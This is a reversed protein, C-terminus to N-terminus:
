FFSLFVVGLANFLFNSVKPLYVSSKKNVLVVKSGMQVEQRRPSEAAKSKDGGQVQRRRPSTAAKSKGGGQVKRRRPSEAAKSELVRYFLDLVKCFELVQTALAIGPRWPSSIM